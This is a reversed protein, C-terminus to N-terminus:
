SESCVGASVNNGYAERPSLPEVRKPKTELQADARAPAIRRCQERLRGAQLEPRARLYTNTVGPCPEDHGARRLGVARAGGEDAFGDLAAGAGPRLLNVAILGITAALFSTLVCYGLTKGFLRGIARGSGPSAIGSVISAMVLPVIITRLLRM